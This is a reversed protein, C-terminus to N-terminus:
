SGPHSSGDVPPDRPPDRPPEQTRPRKWAPFEESAEEPPHLRDWETKAAVAEDILREKSARGSRGSAVFSLVGAAVALVPHRNVLLFLALVLCAQSALNLLISTREDRHM